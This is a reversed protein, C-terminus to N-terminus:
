DNNVDKKINKVVKPEKKAEKSSKSAVNKSNQANKSLNTKTQARKAEIQLKTTSKTEMQAKKLRKLEHTAEKLGNTYDKLAKTATKVDSAVMKATKSQLHSDKLEEQIIERINDPNQATQADVYKKTVCEEPKAAPIDEFDEIHVSTSKQNSFLRRFSRIQRKIAPVFGTTLPKHDKRTM